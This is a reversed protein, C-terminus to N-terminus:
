GGLQDPVEHPCWPRIVGDTAGIAGPDRGGFKVTLDHQDIEPRGPALRAPFFHGHQNPKVLTEGLGAQLHNSNREVIYRLRKDLYHEVVHAPLAEDYRYAIRDFTEESM